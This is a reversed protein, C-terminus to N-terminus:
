YSLTRYGLALVLIVVGASVLITAVLAAALMAMGPGLTVAVIVALVAAVVLGSGLWLAADGGPSQRPAWQAASALGFLTVLDYVGVAMTRMASLAWNSDREAEYRLPPMLRTM